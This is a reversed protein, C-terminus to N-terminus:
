KLNKQCIIFLKYALIIIYYTLLVKYEYIYLM